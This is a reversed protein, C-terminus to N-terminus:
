VIGIKEKIAIIEQEIRDFRKEMYAKLDYRLGRIEDITEDQKELMTRGIMVSEETHKVSKEGLEVSKESLKVSKEGLEVSKESLKVSKEGLEVSKYLLKGAADLREGLEEHWEGRRIEFYEFEGKFEDFNVITDEVDIPYKKIKIQEIFRNINDAEGEAVIKVDYPKINEVFGSLRLKRAIREVEDRFGVRQVEGKAVIVVRKM